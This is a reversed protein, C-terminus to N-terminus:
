GVRGGSLRLFVKGRDLAEVLHRYEGYLDNYVAAHRPVPEYRARPRVFAEAAEHFNRYAGMAVAACVAAGTVAADAVDVTTVPLGLVDAHIQNWVPSLSGGGVLRVESVEVGAERITELMWRIELSIGELVARIIHARTHALGLGVIAGRFEPRILPASAGNFTPLVLLGEAGPAVTAAEEALRDYASGNGEARRGQDRCLENRVWRFVAGSAQTHGEMEWAGPVVHAGCNLVRRPDLRPEPLFVQVGAATGINVMVRGPVIAGCGVAACQGDGGGAVVRTGARLGCVEAAWPSVGGVVTVSPVVRPLKERPLALAALLDDSWDARRIDFPCFFTGASTDCLFEDAGLWRLHLTQPPAVVRCRRFLDPAARQLWLVKSLGTYPVLPHGATDYYRETGVTRRVEELQPVGRQDMWVIHNTLPEGGKDLAIVTGRQVSLAIAEVGEPAVGARVLAERLAECQLTWTRGPDQEARGTAPFLLTQERSAAALLSGTVDFIGVKIRTTGLDIAAV